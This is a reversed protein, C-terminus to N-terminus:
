RHKVQYRLEVVGSTYVKSDILKLEQEHQSDAFLPIGKGMAYPMIFLLMEDLLGADLCLSNAEGGGILWIGKGDQDKLEKIRKAHNSSFFTAYEDDALAENRTLVYNKKDLYPFPKILEKVQQYTTNGMITTDITKFFEAYGYDSQDPNPLEELWAFGGLADAIKGDISVAIYSILKRM